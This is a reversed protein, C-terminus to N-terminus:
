LQGSMISYTLIFFVIWSIFYIGIGMTMLKTQKEVKNYFKAKILYYSILYVLLAITVGNTFTTLATANQMTAVFASILAAVIGLTLRTWYIIALPKM